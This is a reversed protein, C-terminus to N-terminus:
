FIDFDKNLFKNQVDKLCSLDLLNQDWCCLVDDILLTLQLSCQGTCVVAVCSFCHVTICHSKCAVTAVVVLV